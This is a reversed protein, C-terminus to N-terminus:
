IVAQAAKVQTAPPIARQTKHGAGINDRSRRWFVRVLLDGKIEGAVCAVCTAQSHLPPDLPLTCPTCVGGSIVQPKRICSTNELFFFSHPKNTSFYLLLRTCGSRFFIRSGGRSHSM